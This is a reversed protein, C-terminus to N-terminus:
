PAAHIEGVLRHLTFDDVRIDVRLKWRGAVPLTLDSVTWATEADGTAQRTIPEIGAEPKSLAFRVEQADLPSFDSGLFSATLRMRGDANKQLTVTAMAQEGHLHISESKAIEVASSRPPPTFRWTAVVGLLVLVLLAELLISRVLMTTETKARRLAGATLRWRNFVALALLPVLLALKTLLVTGYPTWLRDITGVQVFALAIGGISLVLIVLPISSSFRRLSPGAVPSAARLEAALPMLAGAWIGAGAVHAFIFARTLWQPAATSAHGSLCPALAAVALAIIAMWAVSRQKSILAGAALALSILAAVATRGFSTTLGAQWVDLRFLEETPQGVTDLGQFAVSIIVGVLGTALMGAVARAALMSGNCFVRIAFVGGVGLLLGAYLCVRGLWLGARVNQDVVDQRGVSATQPQGISFVVTGAVPHGDESVVRWSVLYTGKALGEPPRIEVVGGDVVFRELGISSGDPTTMTLRMPAVPESFHLKISAPAAAIVSGDPPESLHLSAHANAVAVMGLWILLSLTIGRLTPLQSRISFLTM